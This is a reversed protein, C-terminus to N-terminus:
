SVLDARFKKKKKLNKISLFCSQRQEFLPWLLAWLKKLTQIDIVAFTGGRALAM